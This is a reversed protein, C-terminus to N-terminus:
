PVLRATAGKLALRLFPAPVGGFRSRLLEPHDELKRRQMGWYDVFSTVSLDGMVWWSYAQLPEAVPNALVLGSGNLPEYPGFLGPAVMGYLGTPGAPGGAGFVHAQTSWFLYYLGDRRIIHPRELENSVGDATVLPPLLLDWGSFEEDVARAIGIAGNAEHASGKLSAAFVVYSRGSPSDYFYGPDRWAKLKGPAGEAQNVLVYVDDDSAVMETPESWDAIVPLAGSADLTGRTQFLRQEVTLKAEGRRGAATFFLTVEDGDLIASGSWDRSGPAFGDAFLNGADLWVAGRQLLLRIRALGHRDIPDPLQPASLAFWVIGGMVAATSGDRWALPWMDWVDLGPLVPRVDGPGIVPARPASRDDIAAVHAASWVSSV